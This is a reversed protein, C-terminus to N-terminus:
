EDIFRDSFLRLANISVQESLQDFDLNAIDAVQVYIEKIYAPENRKGRYAQPPLYPSDTELLLRNAPISAAVSRLQDSRPYTVPGALSIYLDLSLFSELETMDGSFCHMVGTTSSDLGEKLVRLIEKGANRSHIILPKGIENALEIHKRFVAIQDEKSSRNRYFDLGTEGIALVNDDLALERLRNFWNGHLKGADHPHIGVSASIQKYKKSLFVSQKSSREDAGVNMIAAIGAGAARKLVHDLDTSYQSFDLHAHTDVLITM